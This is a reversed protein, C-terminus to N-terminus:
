NNLLKDAVASTSILRQQAIANVSSDAFPDGSVCDLGTSLQSTKLTPEGVEKLRRASAPLTISHTETFGGAVLAKRGIARDPRHASRPMIM